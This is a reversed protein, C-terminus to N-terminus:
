RGAPDFGSACNGPLGVTQEDGKYVTGPAMVQVTALHNPDFGL